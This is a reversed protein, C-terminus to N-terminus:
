RRRAPRLTAVLADLERRLEQAAELVASRDEPGLNPLDAVVAGLAKTSAGLVVLARTRSHPLDAPRALELVAHAEERQVQIRERPSTPLLGVAALQAPEVLERLYNGVHYRLASQIGSASDPPVGAEAYLAEAAQRYEWSRGRWDVEGDATRYYSRLKIVCLALRRLIETTTEGVAIYARILEVAVARVEEESVRRRVIDPAVSHADLRAPTRSM